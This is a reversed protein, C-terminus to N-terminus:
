EITLYFNSSAPNNSYSYIYLFRNFLQRTHVLFIAQSGGRGGLGVPDGLQQGCKPPTSFIDNFTGLCLLISNSPVELHIKLLVGTPDILPQVIPVAQGPTVSGAQSTLRRM